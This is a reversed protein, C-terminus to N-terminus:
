FHGDRNGQSRTKAFAISCQAGGCGIELIKKGKLNGLIKYHKENPSGPGYHIDIPIKCDKQYEKSTKEWWKKVEKTM